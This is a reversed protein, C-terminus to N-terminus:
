LRVGLATLTETTMTGTVGLGQAAQFARLAAQTQTGMIGDISGPDYNRSFLAAQVRMILMRLDDADRRPTQTQDSSPRLTTGTTSSPSAEDLPRAQSSEPTPRPPPTYVPAPTYSRYSSGAGSSHSRHSSHSSHSRHSRHGAYLNHLGDNLSSSLVISYMADAAALELLHAPDQPPESGLTVLTSSALILATSM